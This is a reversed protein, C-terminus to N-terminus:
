FKIKSFLRCIEKGCSIVDFNGVYKVEASPTAYFFESYQTVVQGLYTINNTVARGFLVPNVAGSVLTKSHSNNTPIWLLDPHYHLYYNGKEVHNYGNCAFSGGANGPTDTM